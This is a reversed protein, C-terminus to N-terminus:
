PPSATASSASARADATTCALSSSTSCSSSSRSALYPVSFRPSSRRPRPHPAQHPHPAPPAFTLQHSPAGRPVYVYRSPTFRASSATSLSVSTSSSRRCVLAFTLTQTGPHLACFNACHFQIRPEAVGSRSFCGWARADTSHDPSLVTSHHPVSLLCICTAYSSYVWQRYVFTGARMLVRVHASPFRVADRTTRCYSPRFSFM